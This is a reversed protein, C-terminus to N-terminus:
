SWSRIIGLHQLGGVNRSVEFKVRRGERHDRTHVKVTFNTNKAEEHTLGHLPVFTKVNLHTQCNECGQVHWRSLVPEIHVLKHNAWISILFSGAINGRNIGPIRLTPLPSPAAVPRRRAYGPSAQVPGPTTWEPAVCDKYTYGLKYINVFDKFYQSPCVSISYLQWIM